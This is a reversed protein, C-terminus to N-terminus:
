APRPLLNAFDVAPLRCPVFEAGLARVLPCSPGRRSVGDSCNADSEVYEAWVRCRLSAVTLHFLAALSALDSQAGGGKIVGALAATNDIFHLVSAERFVEPCSAYPLIAAVLELVNIYQQRDEFAAMM